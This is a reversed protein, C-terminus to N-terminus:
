CCPAFVDLSVGSCHCCTMFSRTSSPILGLSRALFHFQLESVMLVLTLFAPKVKGMCYLFVSLRSEAFKLSIDAAEFLSATFGLHADISFLQSAWGTRALFDAGVGVADDTDRAAAVADGDAGDTDEAADDPAGAYM